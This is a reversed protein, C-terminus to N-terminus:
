QRRLFVWAGLAASAGMLGALVIAASWGGGTVLGVLLGVVAYAPVQALVARRGRARRRAPDDVLVGPRRDARRLIARAGPWPSLGILGTAILLWHRWGDNWLVVGAALSCVGCVIEMRRVWALAERPDTAATPMRM